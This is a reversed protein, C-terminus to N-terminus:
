RTVPINGNKLMKGEIKFVLLSYLYEVMIRLKWFM